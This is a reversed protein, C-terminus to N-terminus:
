PLYKGTLFRTLKERARKSEEREGKQTLAGGGDRMMDQERRKERKMEM